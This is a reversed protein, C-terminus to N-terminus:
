EIFNFWKNRLIDNQASDDDVDWKSKMTIQFMKLRTGITNIHNNYQANRGTVDNEVWNTLELFFDEKALPFAVGKKEVFSKFHEM